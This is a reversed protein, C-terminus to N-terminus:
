RQEERGVSLVGVGLWPRTEVPLVVDRGGVPVALQTVTGAATTADADSMLILCPDAGNRAVYAAAAEGVRDRLPRKAPDYWSLYLGNLDNVM